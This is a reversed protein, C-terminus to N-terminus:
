FITRTQWGPIVTQWGKWDIRFGGLSNIMEDKKNRDAKYDDFRASIFEVSDVKM